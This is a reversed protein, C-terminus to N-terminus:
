YTALKNPPQYKNSINCVKRKTFVLLITTFLPHKSFCKRHLVCVTEEFSLPPLTDQTFIDKLQNRLFHINM